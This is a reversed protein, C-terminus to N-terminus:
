ENAPDFAPINSFAIRSPVTSESDCMTGFHIANKGFTRNVNDMVHSITTLQRDSEFLSPTTSAAPTLDFLVMSVKLPQGSVSPRKAWWEGFAILLTLTDQCRPISSGAEWREGTNYRVSVTMRGCWYGIGRLRAAAKHILKVIIGRAGDDNRLVPPLVHSHGVTRRHTAKEHVEEGRLIYYWREGHIRSGWILTQAKVSLQCLQETTFVGHKHFRKGMRPGIGPFDTIPLSYLRDPLEESEIITLGDPKQMDSAVKALIGNPAVGISCRIWEGMEACIEAKIKTGIRRVAETNREDGILRCAMEDISMVRHVPLCRNVARVIQNHVEVYREHRAVVLQLSPCLQLAEWVPTGTKIGYAKAEYSAALCSTSRALMPVIGVPKGRLEPNDQQEVSAFYANMDVFLIRLPVLSGGFM